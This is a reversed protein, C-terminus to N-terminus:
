EDKLASRGTVVKLVEPSRLIDILEFYLREEKKLDGSMRAIYVGVCLDQLPEPHPIDTLILNAASGGLLLRILRGVVYVVSVYFTLVSFNFTIPSYPESITYFSIGHVVWYLFPTATDQTLNLFLTGQPSGSVSSPNLQTGATPIRVMQSYFGPFSFNSSTSNSQFTKLILQCM